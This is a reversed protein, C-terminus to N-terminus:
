PVINVGDSGEIAQGGFTAGNLILETSNADLSGNRVLAQTNFHLILDRDGDNDVDDLSAKLSGNRRTAVSTDNGEDNGLTVTAPDVDAADFDDTTLIAVPIGGRSGLNISNPDSGPKINIAVTVVPSAIEIDGFLTPCSLCVTPFDTDVIVQSGPPGVFLRLSLTWGVTDGARLSFDHADDASDLPRSTEYITFGGATSVQGVGDNTGGFDTDLLGCLAGAPCPPLFTRFDDFLQGPPNLVFVDDGEERVGDHDNDFEVVFSSFLVQSQPPPTEVRLALYLNNADNMAFFTAPSTAGGGVNVLFDVQGAADWEGPSLIGDITASGIGSLADQGGVQVHFAPGEPTDTGVPEQPNECAALALLSVTLLTMRKM